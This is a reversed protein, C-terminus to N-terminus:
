PAVVRYFRCPRSLAQDDLLITTPQENKFPLLDIWSRLDSSGQLPHHQGPDGDIAPEDRRM